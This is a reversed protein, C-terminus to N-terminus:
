PISMLLSSMCVQLINSTVESVRNDCHMIIVRIVLFLKSLAENLDHIEPKLLLQDDDNLGLFNESGKLDIADLGATMEAAERDLIAQNLSQLSSSAVISTYKQEIEDPNTSQPLQSLTTKPTLVSLNNANYVRDSVKLNAFPFASALSTILPLLLSSRLNTGSAADLSSSNPEV